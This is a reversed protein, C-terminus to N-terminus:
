IIPSSEQLKVLVGHLKLCEEGSHTTLITIKGERNEQIYEMAKEKNEKDLGSFPEDLLLLGGGALVARVLEVRRRMGGSLRSVPKNLCGKPLLRGLEGAATEKTVCKNKGATLMVNEIASLNDILRCDQFVMSIGTKGSPKLSIRGKQFHEVGALLHLFTTKGIGSSGTLCYIEGQRCQLNFDTLVVHSGYSKSIGEASLRVDEEQGSSDYAKSKGKLFWKARGARELLYLFGRELLFSIVIVVATWALVGPTDLYIKAMYIREGISLEPTGIVEAAVGSKMSMGLCTKCSNRLYPFVAPVYLYMVKKPFSVQFVEMMEQRKGDVHALGTLISEYVNPFAVLFSCFYSLKGSGFWILLLVVFSAVPISKFVSIIPSLLEKIFPFRFSFAGLLIGTFFALLFGISIRMVSLCVVQWFDAELIHIALYQAVQLPGAVLIPNDVALQIGQWILLWFLIIGMRKWLSRKKLVKTQKM